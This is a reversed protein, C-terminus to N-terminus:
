ETRRRPHASGASTWATAAEAGPRHVRRDGERPHGRQRRLDDPRAHQREEDARRDVGERQDERHEQEPDPDAAADAGRHRASHGPRTEAEAPTLHKEAARNGPRRVHAGLRERPPGDIRRQRRIGPEVELEIEHARHPGHQRRRDQPARAKRQRERGHSGVTLIGGAEHTADVSRVRDTRDDARQRRAQDQDRPKAALVGLLNEDDDGPERRKQNQLRDRVVSSPRGRECNAPVIGITAAATHAARSARFTGGIGGSSTAYPRYATVRIPWASIM